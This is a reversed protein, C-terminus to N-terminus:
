NNLRVKQSILSICPVFFFVSSFATVCSLVIPLAEETEVSGTGIQKLTQEAHQIALCVPCDAGTCNHNSEKVIFLVTFLTFSIFAFCILISHTRQKKTFM